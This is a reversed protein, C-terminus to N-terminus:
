RGLEAACDEEFLALYDELPELGVEARREDVHERDAIPTAPRATGNRCRIQSGYTQPRGTNVAVRDELFAVESPDADGAALAENMLALVQEQFAVDFDSHQAILWAASAGDEGVLAPTPWGFEEIIERLRLTRDADTETGIPKGIREAQDRDRMALLEERLAPEQIGGRESSPSVSGQPESGNRRSCAAASVILSIVMAIGLRGV